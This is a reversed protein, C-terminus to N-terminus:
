GTVRTYVHSWTTWVCAHQETEPQSNICKCHEYKTNATSMLLLMCLWVPVRFPYQNCYLEGSPWINKKKRKLRALEFKHLEKMITKVCFLVMKCRATCWGMAIECSQLRMLRNLSTVSSSHSWQSVMKNGQVCACLDSVLLVHNNSLNSIRNHVHLCPSDKTMQQQSPTQVPRTLSEEALVAYM